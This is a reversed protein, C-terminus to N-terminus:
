NRHGFTALTMGRFGNCMSDPAGRPPACRPTSSRRAPPHEGGCTRQHDRNAPKKWAGRGGGGWVASLQLPELKLCLLTNTHTHSKRKQHASLSMRQWKNGKPIKINLNFGPYLPLGLNPPTLTAILLHLLRLPPQPHPEPPQSCTPQACSFIAWAGFFPYSIAFSPHQLM